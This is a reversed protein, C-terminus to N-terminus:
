SVSAARVFSKVLPHVIGRFASREPQFLAGVFFPHGNLEMIRTEGEPDRGVVRYGASDLLPAFAPNPGYNCTGYQEVAEDAGYFGAVRSGPSLRFVNTTESVSCMLPTVWKEAAEPNEEAHGAGEAGLANRAIELIMHQFGGCTGLAPVQRERAYRIGNLAGQMSAYPSAPVIWIGNYSRLKEAVDKGDGALEPTPIWEHAAEVGLAEAALRLATPIAVHAKVEANYDGILGIRVM